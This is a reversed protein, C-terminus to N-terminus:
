IRCSLERLMGIDSMWLRSLSTQYSRASECAHLILHWDCNDICRRCHGSFLVIGAPASTVARRERHLRTQQEMGTDSFTALKEGDGNPAGSFSVVHECGLKLPCHALFTKIEPLGHKERNMM